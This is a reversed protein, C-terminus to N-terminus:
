ALRGIPMIPAEKPLPRVHRERGPVVLPEIVYSRIERGIKM